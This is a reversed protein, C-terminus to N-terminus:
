FHTPESMPHYKRLTKLVYWSIFASIGFGQKMNCDAEILARPFRPCINHRAPTAPDFASSPTNDDVGVYFHQSAGGSASAKHTLTLCSTTGRVTELPGSLDMFFYLLLRRKEKTTGVDVNLGGSYDASSDTRIGVHSNTKNGTPSRWTSPSESGCVLLQPNFPDSM